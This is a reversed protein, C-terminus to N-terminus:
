VDLKNKYQELVKREMEFAIDETGDEKLKFFRCPYISAFYYQLATRLDDFLVRTDNHHTVKEIILYSNM